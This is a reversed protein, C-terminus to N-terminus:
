GGSLQYSVIVGREADIDYSSLDINYPINQFADYPFISEQRGVIQVDTPNSLDLIVLDIYSDAYLYNDRIAIETNGPVRIFGLNVPTTPDSNDIVHIGENVENLFVYNQYLYVRGLRDPPRAVEVQVAQRLHQYSMYVPVAPRKYEVCSNGDYTACEVYRGGGGYYSGLALSGSFAGILFVRFKSKREGLSMVPYTGEQALSRKERLSYITLEALVAGAVIALMDSVDVHGVFVELSMLFCLVLLRYHVWTAAKSQPLLYHLCLFTAFSHVLSPLWLLKFGLPYMQSFSHAFASFGPVSQLVPHQRYVGYYLAGVLLACLALIFGKIRQSSDLRSIYSNLMSLFKLGSQAIVIQTTIGFPGM